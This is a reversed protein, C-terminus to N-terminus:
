GGGEANAARAAVCKLLRGSPFVAYSAEGIAAKLQNTRLAKERNLDTIQEHVQQRVLWFDEFEEGLQKTEGNDEPYRARLSAATEPHADMTPERNEVVDQWFESVRDKLIRELDVDRKIRAWRPVKGGISACLYAFDVGLISMQQQVQLQYAIPVQEKWEGEMWASANKIELASVVNFDKDCLLRDATCFWPIQDGKPVAVSFPGPDVMQWEPHEKPLVKAAFWDAIATEAWIRCWELHPDDEYRELPSLGRKRYNLSVPSDWTSMGRLPERPRTFLASIESSGVGLKNRLTLWEHRDKLYLFGAGSPATLDM